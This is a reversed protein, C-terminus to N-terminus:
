FALSQEKEMQGLWGRARMSGAAETFGLLDVPRASEPLPGLCPPMSAPCCSGLNEEGKRERNGQERGLGQPWVPSQDPEDDECSYEATLFSPEPPKWSTLSPPDSLSSGLGRSKYAWWVGGM